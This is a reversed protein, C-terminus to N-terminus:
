LSQEVIRGHAIRMRTALTLDTEAREEWRVVVTGGEERVEPNRPRFGVLGRGALVPGVDARGVVTGDETHLRADPSYLLLATPLDGLELLRMWVRAVEAPHGELAWAQDPRQRSLSPHGKEDPHHAGALDGFRHQRPSVRTGRRLRVDVARRVGRERSVSFRVRAGPVRARPEIDQVRVPYERGGRVVYGEGSRPDFWKVTGTPM